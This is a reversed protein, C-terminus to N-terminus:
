LRKIKTTAAKEVTSKNKETSDLYVSLWTSPLDANRTVITPPFRKKYRRVVVNVENATNANGIAQLYMLELEKKYSAVQKELGTNEKKLETNEKTLSEAQQEAKEAKKVLVFEDASAKVSRKKANEYDELSAYQIGTFHDQYIEKRGFM